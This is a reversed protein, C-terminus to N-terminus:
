TRIIQVIESNYVINNELALESYISSMKTSEGVIYYTGQITDHPSVVYLWNHYFGYAFLGTTPSTWIRPYLMEINNPDHVVVFEQSALESYTLSQFNRGSFYFIMGVFILVTLAAVALPYTCKKTIHGKFSLISKMISYTILPLIDFIREIYATGGLAIAISGIVITSSLQISFVGKDVDNKSRYANVFSAVVGALVVLGLYIAKYTVVQMWVPNPRWIGASFLETNRVILSEIVRRFISTFTQFTSITVFSLYSFWIAAFFLLFIGFRQYIVRKDKRIIKFPLPFFLMATLAIMMFIVLGQHIFILSLISVVLLLVRRRDKRRLLDLILALSLWYIALGYIEAAYHFHGLSIAFQLLLAGGILLPKHLLKKYLIYLPPMYLAIALIQFWKMLFLSAPSAISSPIGCVSFIAATAWFFGPQMDFYGDVSTDTHGTKTVFLGRTLHSRSDYFNTMYFKDLLDPLVYKSFVLLMFAALAILIVISHAKSAKSTLIIMLAPLFSLILFYQPYDSIPGFMDSENYYGIQPPRISILAFAFALLAIVLIVPKWGNM